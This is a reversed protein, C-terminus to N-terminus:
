NVLMDSLNIPPSPKRFEVEADVIKDIDSNAVKFELQEFHANLLESVTGLVAHCDNCSLGNLVRLVEKTRKVDFERNM